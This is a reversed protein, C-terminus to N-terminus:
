RRKLQANRWKTWEEVSMKDPDKQTGSKSASIRTVPKEQAEPKPKAAQKAVLQDYLQAKHFAKIFAPDSVAELNQPKAGLDSMYKTVQKATEPSWNPIDRELVARGEQLSKAIEQQRALAQQQQKQTIGQALQQGYAQLKRIQMDVKVADALNEAAVLQEVHAQLQQIQKNVAIAEAVEGVYQQQEEAMRRVEAAQSEIAKRQEAVEQTKRTYDAQRLLADKLKPPLKYKEGEFEVEEEDATASPETDTQETETEVNPTAAETQSEEAPAVVESDQIVDPQEM